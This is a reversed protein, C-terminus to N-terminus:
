VLPHDPIRIEGTLNEACAAQDPFVSALLDDSRMRQLFPPVKKGGAFRTVALARAANWKWRAGFMPSDLLAQTLVHEVTAVSLFSFVMELPFSHQDETKQAHRRHLM